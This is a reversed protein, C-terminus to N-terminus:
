LSQRLVLIALFFSIVLNFLCSSFTCIWFDPPRLQLPPPPRSHECECHSGLNLIHCVLGSSSLMVGGWCFPSFSCNFHHSVTHSVTLQCRLVFHLAPPSPSTWAWSQVRIFVDEMDTASTSSTKLFIASHMSVAAPYSATHHVLKSLFFFFFDLFKITPPGQITEEDLPYFLFSKSTNFHMNTQTQKTKKKCWPKFFHRESKQWWYQM